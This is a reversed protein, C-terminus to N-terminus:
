MVYLSAICFHRCIGIEMKHLSVAPGPPKTGRPTTHRPAPKMRYCTIAGESIMRIDLAIRPYIRRESTGSYRGSVQSCTIEIRFNVAIGSPIARLLRGLHGARDALTRRTDIHPWGLDQRARHQRATEGGPERAGPCCGIGFRVDLDVDDLCGDCIGPLGAM